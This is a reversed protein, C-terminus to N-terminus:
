KNKNNLYNFYMKAYSEAKMLQSDMWSIDDDTLEVKVITVRLEDALNDMYHLSDAENDPILEEPTNSLVFAVEGDTWKKGTMKTLMYLYHKVQWDYGAEKVKKEAKKVTKPMTKKSWPSKIDIVKMTDADVIDPHGVSILNNKGHKLEYYDDFEALKHYSRFFLRNYVDISEHEVDTGKTMERSSITTKYGYVMEDVMEEIYSKAGESLEDSMEAKKELEDREEAQKETLKIKMKLGNLKDRQKDTLGGKRGTFLPSCGSSRVKIM